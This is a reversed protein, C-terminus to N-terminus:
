GGVPGINSVGGYGLGGQASILGDNIVVDELRKISAIVYGVEGVRFGLVRLTALERGREASPAHLDDRGEVVRAVLTVVRALSAPRRGRRGAPARDDPAPWARIATM